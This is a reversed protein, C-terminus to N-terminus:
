VEANLVSRNNLQTFPISVVVSILAIGGQKLNVARVM